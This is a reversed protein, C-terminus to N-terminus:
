MKDDDVVGLTSSLSLSAQKGEELLVQATDVFPL